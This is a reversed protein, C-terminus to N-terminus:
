PPLRHRSQHAPRHHHPHDIRHRPIIRGDVQVDGMANHSMRILAESESTSNGLRRPGGLPRPPELAPATLGSSHLCCYAFMGDRHKSVGGELFKQRQMQQCSNICDETEVHLCM